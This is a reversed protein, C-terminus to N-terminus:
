TSKEKLIDHLGGVNYIENLGNEKLINFAYASRTGSKCYLVIPAPMKKIDDIEFQIKDVPINVAGPYHEEAYEAPTRVDIVSADDLNLKM